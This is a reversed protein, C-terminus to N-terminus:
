FLLLLPISGATQMVHRILSLDLSIFAWRPPFRFHIARGGEREFSCFHRSNIVIKNWKKKKGRPSKPLLAFCFEISSADTRTHTCKQATCHATSEKCLVSYPYPPINKDLLLLLFSLYFELPSSSLGPPVSVGCPERGREERRKEERRKEEQAEHM